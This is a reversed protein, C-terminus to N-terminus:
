YNNNLGGQNTSFFPNKCPEKKSIERKCLETGKKTGQEKELEIEM